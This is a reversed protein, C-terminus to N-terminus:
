LRYLKIKFTYAPAILPDKALGKLMGHAERTYSPEMRYTEGDIDVTSMLANVDKFSPFKKRIAMVVPDRKLSGYDNNLADVPTLEITIREPPGFPIVKKRDNSEQKGLVFWVDVCTIAIAIVSIIIIM